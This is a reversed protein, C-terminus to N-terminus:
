SDLVELPMVMASWGVGSIGVGNHTAAAATGSVATGHGSDGGSDQTNSTGTLFNWRPVLKSSLDPHTWDAGSDIVAIIVSSSGQTIGWAAPSQIATLHWQSPFSPDNPTVPTSSGQLIHDPEVFTFMGTRMLAASVQDLAPEPVKLVHVNIRDIIKDLHAGAKGLAALVDASNAGLIPQALLRGNVHDNGTSQAAALMGTSVVVAITLDKIKM